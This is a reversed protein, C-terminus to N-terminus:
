HSFLLKWFSFHVDTDTPRTIVQTSPITTVLSHSIRFKTFVVNFVNDAFNDSTEGRVDIYGAKILQNVVKLANQASAAKQVDGNDSQHKKLEEICKLPIIIKVSYQHLLPVIHEWFKEANIYMLSCTDMFIKYGKKIYQELRDQDARDKSSESRPVAM